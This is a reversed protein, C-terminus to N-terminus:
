HFVKMSKKPGGISSVDPRESATSQKQARERGRHSGQGSPGINNRKRDQADMLRAKSKQSAFRPESGKKKAEGASNQKGSKKRPHFDADNKVFSKRNDGGKLKTESKKNKVKSM